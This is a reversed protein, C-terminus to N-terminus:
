IGRAEAAFRTSSLSSSIHVAALLRSYFIGACSFSFPREFRGKKVDPHRKLGTDTACGPGPGPPTGAGRLRLKPTSWAPVHSAGPDAAAGGDGRLFGRLAQAGAEGQPR